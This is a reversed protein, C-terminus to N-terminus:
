CKGLVAVFSLIAFEPTLSCSSMGSMALCDWLVPKGCALAEGVLLEKLCLKAQKGLPTLGDLPGPIEQTVQVQLLWCSCASSLDRAKGVAGGFGSVVLYLMYSGLQEM